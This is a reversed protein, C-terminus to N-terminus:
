YNYKQVPLALLAHLSRQPTSSSKKKKKGRPGKRKAAPLRQKQKSVAEIIICLQELTMDGVKGVSANIITDVLHALAVAGGGGGRGGGESRSMGGGSQGAKRTEDKGRWVSRDKSLTNTAGQLSVLGQLAELLMDADWSAAVQLARQGLGRDLADLGQEGTGMRGLAGLVRAVHAPPLDEANTALLLLSRIGMGGAGGSPFWLQMGHLHILKGASSFIDALLLTDLSALHQHTYSLLARVIDGAERSASLFNGHQATLMPPQLTAIRQLLLPIIEPACSMQSSASLVRAIQKMDANQIM